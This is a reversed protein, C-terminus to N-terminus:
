STYLLCHAFQAADNAARGANEIDARADGAAAGMAERLPGDEIDIWSVNTKVHGMAVEEAVQVLHDIVEDAALKIKIEGADETSGM